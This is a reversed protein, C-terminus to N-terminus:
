SSFPSDTGNWGHPGGILMWSDGGPFPLKLQPQNPAASLELTTSELILLMVMTALIVRLGLAYHSSQQRRSRQSLESSTATLYKYLEQVALFFGVVLLRTLYGLRQM